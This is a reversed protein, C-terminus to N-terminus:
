PGSLNRAQFATGGMEGILREVGANPRISVPRVPRKLHRKRKKMDFM